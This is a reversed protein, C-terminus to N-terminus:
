KIAIDLMYVFIFRWEVAFSVLPRPTLCLGCKVDREREHLDIIQVM